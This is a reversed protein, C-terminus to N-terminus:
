FTAGIMGVFIQDSAGPNFWYGGITVRHWTVQAFPGRQIDRDGGYLRTRQGAIGLRLWEAPRFGL